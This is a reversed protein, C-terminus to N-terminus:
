DWRDISPVFRACGVILPAFMIRTWLSSGKMYFSGGGGIAIMIIGIAFRMIAGKTTINSGDKPPTRHRVM